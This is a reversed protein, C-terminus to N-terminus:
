AVSKFGSSSVGAFKDAEYNAFDLVKVQNKIDNPVFVRLRSTYGALKLAAIRIIFISVIRTISSHSVILKRSVEYYSSIVKGVEADEDKILELMTSAESKAVEMSNEFESEQNESKAKLMASLVDDVGVNPAASLLANIRKYYYQFVEGKQSLKEAAVLAILEDRVAFMKFIVSKRYAKVRLTNIFIAFIIVLISFAILLDSM